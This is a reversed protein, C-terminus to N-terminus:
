RSLLNGHELLFNKYLKCTNLLFVEEKSAVCLDAEKAMERVQTKIFSGVPFMVRRLQKQNLASLFYTQDKIPDKARLLRVLYFMRYFIRHFAFGRKTADLRELFDGQSTSAYHGTAIADAKLNEFAFKQLLGFKV